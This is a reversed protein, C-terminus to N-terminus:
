QDSRATTDSRARSIAGWQTAAVVALVIPLIIVAGGPSGHNPKIVGQSVGALLAFLGAGTVPYVILATNRSTFSGYGGPGLHLPIRADPPLTRAGYWSIGVLVGVLLGSVVFLVVTVAV